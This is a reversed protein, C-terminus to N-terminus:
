FCFTFERVDVDDTDRSGLTEEGAEDGEDAEADIADEDAPGVGGGPGQVGSQVNVSCKKGHEM